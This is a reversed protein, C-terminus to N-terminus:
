AFVHLEFGTLNDEFINRKVTIDERYLAVFVSCLRAILMDGLHIRAATLDTLIRLQKDLM